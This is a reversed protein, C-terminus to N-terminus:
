SAEEQTLHWRLRESLHRHDAALHRHDAKLDAVDAKVETVDDAINKLVEMSKGHQDSNRRDFRHLMFMVPGSILVVVIPVWGWDM